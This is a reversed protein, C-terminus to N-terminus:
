KRFYKQRARLYQHYNIYAWGKKLGLDDEIQQYEELTKAQKRRRNYEAKREEEQKEAKAKREQEEKRRQMEGQYEQETVLILEGTAQKIARKRNQKGAGCYPCNPEASSYNRGCSMCICASTIREQIESKTIKHGTLKWKNNVWPAGHIWFSGSLDLMVAKDKGPYTRLIRGWKQIYRALSATPAMDIGAELWPFDAGESLINVSVLVKFKDATFEELIEDQVSGSQKSHICKAPIGSETFEKAINKSDQINVAFVITRKNPIMKKYLDVANSLRKTGNSKRLYQSQNFDGDIIDLDVDPPNPSYIDMYSLFGLDQLERMSVGQIIEDYLDSFGEGNMKTPTATLGISIGNQYEICTRYNEGLAYHCEDSFTIDYKKDLRSVYSDVSAIQIPENNPEVGFQIIGHKLGFENMVVHWQKVLRDRNMLVICSYGNKVASEIMHCATRSKGAGTPMTIIFRKVGRSLAERADSVTKQQYPRLSIM